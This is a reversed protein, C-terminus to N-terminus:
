KSLAPTARLGLTAYTSFHSPLFIPPIVTDDKQRDDGVCASGSKKNKKRGGGPCPVVGLRGGWDEPTGQYRSRLRFSWAALAHSRAQTLLIPVLGATARCCIASAGNSGGLEVLSEHNTIQSTSRFDCIMLRSDDILPAVSLEV